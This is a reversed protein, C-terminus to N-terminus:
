KRGLSLIPGMLTQLLWRELDEENENLKKYEEDLRQTTCFLVDKLLPDDRLQNLFSEAGRDNGIQSIQFRVATPPYDKEKLYGVCRVIADRFETSPEGSACGDTICSILIPRELKKGSDIVDYILPNLIKRELNIGIKTNGRPEFSRMIEEVQEAKLNDDLTHRKNIFQLGTGCGDPVLLTSIRAVRRVLEVQDRARTGCYFVPQYLALKTIDQIDKKSNLVEDVNNELEVAKMAVDELFKDDEAFFCGLGTDDIFQTMGAQFQKATTKGSIESVHPTKDEDDQQGKKDQQDEQDRHDGQVPDLAATNFGVTSATIRSADSDSYDHIRGSLAAVKDEEPQSIDIASDSDSFQRERPAAQLPARIDGSIGFFSRVVGGFATNMYGISRFLYNVIETVVVDRSSAQGPKLMVAEIVDPDKTARALEEISVTTSGRQIKHDTSAGYHRLLKIVTPERHEIFKSLATSGNSAPINPDAHEQLLYEVTVFREQRTVSPDSHSAWWLVTRKSNDQANVNAKQSILFKVVDIKGRSAAHSLATRGKDDPKDIGFESDASKYPDLAALDTIRGLAAAHYITAM